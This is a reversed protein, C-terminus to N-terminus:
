NAVEMEPAAIAAQYMKYVSGRDTKQHAWTSLAKGLRKLLAIRDAQEAKLAALKTFAKERRETWMARTAATEDATAPRFFGKGTDSEAAPVFHKTPEAPNALLNGLIVISRELEDEKGIRERLEMDVAGHAHFMWSTPEREHLTESLRRMEAVVAAPFDVQTDETLAPERWDRKRSNAGTAHVFRWEIEGTEGVKAAFRVSGAVPKEAGEALFYHDHGTTYATSGVSHSHITGLGALIVHKDRYIPAFYSM